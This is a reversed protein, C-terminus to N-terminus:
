KLSFELKNGPEARIEAALGSSRPDIYKEYLPDKARQQAMRTLEQPNLKKSLEAYEDMEMPGRVITVNYRGAPAGDDKDFTTLKFSGDDGVKGTPFFPQRGRVQPHLTVRAGAAPKGRFLVVGQVAYVTPRSGLLSGVLYYGGAGLGAVVGAVALAM